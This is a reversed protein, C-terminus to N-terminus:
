ATVALSPSARGGKAFAFCDAGLPAKKKEWKSLNPLFVPWPRNEGKVALLSNKARWVL